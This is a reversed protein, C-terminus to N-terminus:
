SEKRPRGRKRPMNRQGPKKGKGWFNRNKRDTTTMSASIKNGKIKYWRMELKGYKLKRARPTRPKNLQQLCQKIVDEETLGEKLYDEVPRELLINAVVAWKDVGLGPVNYPTDDYKGMRTSEGERTLHLCEPIEQLQCSIKM